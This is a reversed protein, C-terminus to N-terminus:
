AINKIIYHIAAILAAAACVLLAYLVRDRLSFRRHKRM